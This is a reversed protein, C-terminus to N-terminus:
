VNYAFFEKKKWGKVIGFEVNINKLNQWPRKGACNLEHEYVVLTNPVGEELVYGDDLKIRGETQKVDYWLLIGTYRLFQGGVFEKKEADIEDRLAVNLGGPLTVTKADISTTGDTKGM